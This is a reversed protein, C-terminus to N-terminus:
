SVMAVIITALTSTNQTRHGHAADTALRELVDRPVAGSDV